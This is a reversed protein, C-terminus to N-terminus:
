TKNGSAIETILTLLREMIEERSHRLALRHNHGDSFEVWLSYGSKVSSASKHSDIGFDTIYRKSMYHAM